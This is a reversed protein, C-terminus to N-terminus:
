VEARVAYMAELSRFVVSSAVAVAAHNAYDEDACLVAYHSDHHVQALTLCFRRVNRWALIGLLLPDSDAAARTTRTTPVTRAKFRNTNINCSPLTQCHNRFHPGRVPPLEFAQCSSPVFQHATHTESISALPARVHQLRATAPTERLGTSFSSSQGPPHQRLNPHEKAPHARQKALM